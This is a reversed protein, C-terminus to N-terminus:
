EDKQKKIILYVIYLRNDKCKNELGTLVSLIRESLQYFPNLGVEVYIIKKDLNLYFKSYVLSM